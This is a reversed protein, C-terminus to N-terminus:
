DKEDSENEPFLIENLSRIVPNIVLKKRLRWFLFILLLYIGSVILFGSELSHLLHGLFISAAISFFLVFLSAVLMVLTTSIILSVVKSLRELLTLKLLDINADIYKRASDIVESVNDAIHSNEM